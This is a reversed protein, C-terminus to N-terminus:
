AHSLESYTVHVSFRVFLIDCFSDALVLNDGPLVFVDSIGYLNINTYDFTGGHAQNDDHLYHVWRVDDGFWVLCM